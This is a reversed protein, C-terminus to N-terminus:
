GRRRAPSTEAGRSGRNRPSGGNRIGAGRRILRRVASVTRLPASQPASKTQRLPLNLDAHPQPDVEPRRVRHDRRDVAPVIRDGRELVGVEDGRERGRSLVAGQPESRLRGRHRVVRLPGDQARELSQEVVGPRLRFHARTRAGDLQDVQEGGEERVQAILQPQPGVRAGALPLRELGRHADRRIRGARLADEGDVGEAPGAEVDDGQEVLGASGTELVGVTEALRHGALALVDQDVVQAPAGEVRRQDLHLPARVLDDGGGADRPQAAVVEVLRDEPQHLLLEPRDRRRALALQEEVLAPQLLLRDVRVGALQDDIEGSEAAVLRQHQRGFVHEGGAGRENLLREIRHLRRHAIRAALLLVDIPALQGADVHHTARACERGHVPVQALAEARM